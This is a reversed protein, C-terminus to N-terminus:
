FKELRKSLKLNLTITDPINASNVASERFQYSWTLRKSGNAELKLIKASNKPSFKVLDIELNPLVMLEQNFYIDEDSVNHVIFDINEDRGIKVTEGLSEPRITLKLNSSSESHFRVNITKHRKTYQTSQTKLTDTKSNLQSMGLWVCSVFVLLYLIKGIM